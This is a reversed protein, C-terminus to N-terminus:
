WEESGKPKGWCTDVEEPLNEPTVQALLDLLNPFETVPRRMIGGCAKVDLTEQSDRTQSKKNLM